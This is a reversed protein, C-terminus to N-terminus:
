GLFFEVPVAVEIETPRDEPIPPLPEARRVTELAAKDLLDSGSSRQLSVFLVRGERNVRFRVYAVGQVRGVRAASPYRKVRELRGMVRAEWNDPGDRPSAPPAAPPPAPTSPEARVATSPQSNPQTAAAPQNPPALSMRPAELVPVAPPPLPRQPQPEEPPPAPPTPKEPEPEAAEPILKVEFTAPATPVPASTQWRLVLVLVVIVHLATTLAIAGLRSRLPRRDGYRAPPLGPATTM